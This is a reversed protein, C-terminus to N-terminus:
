CYVDDQCWGRVRHRPVGISIFLSFRELGCVSIGRIQFVLWLSVLIFLVALSCERVADKIEVPDWGSAVSHFVINSVSHFM